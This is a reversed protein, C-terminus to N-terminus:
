GQSYNYDLRACSWKGKTKKLKNLIKGQKARSGTNRIQNEVKGQWHCTMMTELSVTDSQTSLM